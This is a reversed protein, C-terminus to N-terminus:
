LIGHMSGKLTAAARSKCQLKRFISEVHARVTSPSIGLLRASEKNSLGRSISRLVECERATLIQGRPPGESPSPASGVGNGALVIDTVQPEFRGLQAQRHMHDRAADASMPMRWPRPAQLALWTCVVPLIRNEPATAAHRSGRFYGSGDLREYAYSAIEAECALSKMQMAARATWYPGLRVREWDANSLPGPRNWVANPTAVRGLGHLLAACQISTQMAAPLGLQNAVSRALRAVQRSYGTLWPLKLDIANALLSLDVTTAVCDVPASVPWLGYGDLEAIWEPLRKAVLDVLKKPYIVDARQHILASARDIGHERTFIDMDGALAVVYVPSPIEDGKRGSPYGTGSWSPYGSGNWTEFLCELAQVVGESLGMAQAILVAVECHVASIASTHHATRNPAVLLQVDQPRLALLAGRGLVDDSIAIAVDSANATCGVWRLLAVQGLEMCEADALCLERGIRRALWAVRPSHDTPQGMSLDGMFALASLADALSIPAVPNQM